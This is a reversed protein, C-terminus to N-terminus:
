LLIAHGPAVAVAALFGPLRFRLTTVIDGRQRRPASVTPRTAAQRRRFVAGCGILATGLLVLSTPEPVAATEVDLTFSDATPGSGWTWVFTGPTVGLSSFTQDDFTMSASLQTGSVYNHPVILENIAGNDSNIGMSGGSGMNPEFTEGTEGTGFNVPGSIRSFFDAAVAGPEGVAILGTRPEIASIQGATGDFTLGATDISGSGNAAVNSGDQTLTVVFAAQAPPACLGSGIVMATGIAAAGVVRFSRMTGGERECGCRGLLTRVGDSGHDSPYLALTTGTLSKLHNSSASYKAPSFLTLKEALLVRISFTFGLNGCTFITVIEPV